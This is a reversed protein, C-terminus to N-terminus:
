GASEKCKDPYAVLDFDGAAMAGALTKAWELEKPDVEVALIESELQAPDKVAEAYNLFTMALVKGMPRMLVIQDRDRLV